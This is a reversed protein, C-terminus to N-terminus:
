GSVPVWVGRADYGRANCDGGANRGRKAIRFGWGVNRGHTRGPCEEETRHPQAGEDGQQETKRYPHPQQERGPVAAARHDLRPVPRRGHRCAYRCGYRCGADPVLPVAAAM